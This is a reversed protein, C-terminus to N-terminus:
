LSIGSSHKNECHTGIIGTPGDKMMCKRKWQGEGVLPASLTGHIVVVTVSTTEETMAAAMVVVPGSDTGGAMSGFPGAHLVM